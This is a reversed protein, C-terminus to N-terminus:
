AMGASELARQTFAMYRVGDAFSTLRVTEESRIAGIFEAEVRWSEQEEKPPLLSETAGDKRHLTCTNESLNLRLTGNEGYMLFDNPTPCAGTVQSCRIHYSAGSELTGFVDLHDPIELEHVAGRADSRQPVFVRGTAEVTEAHGLWRALAEYYIGLMMTNLGSYERQERWTLPRAADAFGACNAYVDVNLVTGIVGERIIRTLYRDWQLTFPSPVVQAVLDPRSAAAALMAEAETLNMAMRAECLVHKGAELAAISAAAHLYPWTGIMVADIEPDEVVEQWHSAIRPVGAQDAVQQSSHASRNCITEISVGGISQFGPIHRARTNSGAGIIGVRVPKTM